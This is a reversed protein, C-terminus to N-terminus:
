LNAQTAPHSGKSAMTISTIVTEPLGQGTEGLRQGRRAKYHTTPSAVTLTESDQQTVGDKMGPASEQTSVPTPAKM